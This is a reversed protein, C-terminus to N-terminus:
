LAPGEDDENLVDVHVDLGAGNKLSGHVTIDSGDVDVSTIQVDPIVIGGNRPKKKAM